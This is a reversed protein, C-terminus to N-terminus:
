GVLVERYKGVDAAAVACEQLFAHRIIFRSVVVRPTTPPWLQRTKEEDIEFRLRIKPASIEFSNKLNYLSLKQRDYIEM